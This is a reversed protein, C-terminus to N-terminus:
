PCVPRPGLTVALDAVAASLEQPTAKLEGGLFTSYKFFGDYTKQDQLCSRQDIRALVQNLQAVVKTNQAAVDNTRKAVANVRSIDHKEVVHLSEAGVFVFALVITYATVIPHRHLFSRIVGM